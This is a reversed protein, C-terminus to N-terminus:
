SGGSRPGQSEGVGRIRDVQSGATQQTAAVERQEDTTRRIEPTECRATRAARNRKIDIVVLARKRQVRPNDIIWRTAAHLQHQGGAVAPAEVQPAARVTVRTTGNEIAHREREVVRATHRNDGRASEYEVTRRNRHGVAATLNRSAVGDGEITGGRQSEVAVVRECVQDEIVDAAVRRDHVSAADQAERTAADCRGGAVNVLGPRKRRPGDIEASGRADEVHAGDKDPRM